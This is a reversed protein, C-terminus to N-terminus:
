LLPPVLRRPSPAPANEAFPRVHLLARLAAEPGRGRFAYQKVHVRVLAGRRYVLLHADPTGPCKSLASDGQGTRLQAEVEDFTSGFLVEAFDRPLGLYGAAAWGESFGPSTRGHRDTGYARVTPVNFGETSRFLCRKPAVGLARVELLLATWASLLDPRGM